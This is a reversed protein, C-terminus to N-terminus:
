PVMWFRTTVPTGGSAAPDLVDQDVLVKGLTLAGGGAM